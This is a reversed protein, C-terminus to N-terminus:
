SKFNVLLYSQFFEADAILQYLFGKLYPSSSSWNAGALDFGLNRGEEDGHVGNEKSSGESDVLRPRATDGDGARVTAWRQGLHACIMEAERQSATPGLRM